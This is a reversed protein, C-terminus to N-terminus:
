LVFQKSFKNILPFVFTVEIRPTRPSESDECVSEAETKHLTKADCFTHFASTQQRVVLKVKSAFHVIQQIRLLSQINIETCFLM